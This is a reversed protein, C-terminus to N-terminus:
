SVDEVIYLEDSDGSVRIAQSDVSVRLEDQAAFVYSEPRDCFVASSKSETTVEFWPAFITEGGGGATIAQLHESATGSLMGSLSTLLEGATM